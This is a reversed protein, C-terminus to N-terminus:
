AAIVQLKLTLGGALGTSLDLWDISGAVALLGATM